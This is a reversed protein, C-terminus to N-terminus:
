HRLNWVRAVTGDDCILLLENGRYHPYCAVVFPLSHKKTAVLDFGQGRRRHWEITTRTVAAILGPGILAVAQFPETGSFSKTAVRTLIGDRIEVESWYVTGEGGVGALEMTEVGKRFGSVGPRWLSTGESIEPRWGVTWTTCHPTALNDYHVLEGQGLALLTPGPSNKGPGDWRPLLVAGEITLDATDIAQYRSPLLSLADLLRIEADIGLAVTKQLVLPALWADRAKAKMDRSAVLRGGRHTSCRKEEPGKCSLVVLIEGRPDTAVSLVPLHDDYVLRVEGRAPHFSFVEGSQFGLFLDGTELAQCVARVTGIRAPIVTWTVAAQPGASKRPSTAKLGKGPVGAPPARQAESKMAFVADSVVAASWGGSPALLTSALYGARSEPVRLRMRGALGLLAQDRLDDRKAASGPREALHAIENFFEGAETDSGEKTLFGEAEAALAMIKDWAEEQGLLQALRIACPIPAGSHRQEWGAQYYERALDPRRARTLLLEGAQYHGSGSEVLKAAALRYEVLALEDEGARQLLDGALAHDGRQRYLALARDIEGAAEFERAAAQTDHLRALYLIAADHHLGGQALAAAASRYDRLLMGYIFAARRYDGARLAAEAQKRYEKELERWADFRSFWIGPREADRGLLEQLSYLINNRPLHSSQSPAAGRATDGGLPLARRLAREINGERFDRLLDRLSAEQRGLLAESLRPALNMASSMLGAGARALGRLHLMSGLWALGKGLGYTVNGLARAPASSDEPRPDETGIDAGGVELIAEPTTDQSELTIETLRNALPPRPPLSLWAERRLNTVGVLAAPPLPAHPAFELVRGGPLFILGRHRGLAIAEDQLLAPVLDADAPLLLNDALARLRMAGMLTEYSARPAHPSCKLLFGDAVLFVEPLPDCGLAACARLVDEPRHSLLLLATAPATETLRRLRFAVKM